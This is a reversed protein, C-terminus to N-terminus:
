HLCHRLRNMLILAPTSISFHWAVIYSAVACMVEVASIMSSYVSCRSTGSVLFVNTANTESVFGETDLMLADAAGANNAQVKALINQILNNHHIKNDITAPASRRNAATILDVGAVNDYTAANGVPKFEPVILLWCGFSNFKPNMSSTTKLGRSLTMRVHVGDRMGNARLTEFLAGRIFEKSPVREFCMAVASDMMRQLHEELKLVRGDYIRLGEWM